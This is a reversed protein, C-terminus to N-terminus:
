ILETSPTSLISARARALGIPPVSRLTYDTNMGIFFSTRLPVQAGGTSPRMGGGGALYERWSSDV